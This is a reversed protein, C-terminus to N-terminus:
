RPLRDIGVLSYIGSRVSKWLFKFFTADASHEHEIRGTHMDGEGPVNKPRLALGTVVTKLRSGLNREGTAENLMEVELNRYISHLSGKATGRKVDAQFWLSDVQGSEVRIGSLPVFTDNFARVDMAGLQGEFDLELHPALLPIRWTTRLLGAGNVRTQAEMVLPTSPTMRASDNTVNHLNARLDEFWIAGGEPVGESRKAYRIEGGRVRLTDIRLSRNLREVADQPMPPPPDKPQPPLHNDRYVDLTMTDVRVRAAHLAGDEVFRRYDFGAIAVRAAGTRIRNARYKQRRMFATDSVPPAYHADQVSLVSDQRSVRSPGLQVEYPGSPTLQRFGDFAGESFRAALFQPSAVKAVSDAALSDLRVSLGWLSDRPPRDLPGRTLTGDEIRFQGVHLSSIRSGGGTADETEAQGEQRQTEPVDRTRIAVSPTRVRVADLRLARRWLLAWTGIDQLHVSSASARIQRPLPRRGEKQEGSQSDPRVTAGEVRLSQALFGWGVDDITLQYRGDTAEDLAQDLRHEVTDTDFVGRVTLDLALAAVALVALGVGGWRLLTWLRTSSVKLRKEEGNTM